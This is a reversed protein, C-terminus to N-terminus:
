LALGGGSTAVMSRVGTYAAGLAMHIAAIEDEAQEFLLPLRNTEKSMNVFVGSAPTMPYASIFQCGAAMAGLSAAENGNLLLRQPSSLKMLKCRCDGQFNDRAYAAGGRAVKINSNVIDEGKGAFLNQLTEELSQFDGEILQWVAGLAATNGMVSKGGHEKGIKSLPLALSNPPEEEIKVKESDYIIVGGSCVENSHQEISKKDLAILVDLEDKYSWLPFSAARIQSFNHGGRVRSFYDENTFIHMGQRALSRALVLGITQLGQGAEGGIKFTYDQKM